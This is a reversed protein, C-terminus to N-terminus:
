DPFDNKDGRLLGDSGSNLKRAFIRLDGEGFKEKGFQHQAVVDPDSDTAYGGRLRKFEGFGHYALRQTIEVWTTHRYVANLADGLHCRKGTEINLYKLYDIIFDEPIDKLMAMSADWLDYSIGGSGDTYYWIWGGPKLVRWVEKIARDEDELHHFVGNQIAFDFSENKVPVEYVSEKKFELKDSGVGIRDRAKIAYEISLKGFDIGLVYSAEEGLLAHSFNGHGCGFDIGRLGKIKNGTLGNIKLRYTYREIRKEYEAESFNVWLQQYLDHHLSETPRKADKFFQPGPQEIFGIERWAKLYAGTEQILNSVLTYPHETLNQDVQIKEYRMNLLILASIKGIAMTKTTPIESALVVLESLDKLYSKENLHTV